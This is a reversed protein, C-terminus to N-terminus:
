YGSITGSEIDEQRGVDSTPNASSSGSSTSTPTPAPASTSDGQGVTQVTGDPQTVPVDGTVVNLFADGTRLDIRVSVQAGDQVVATANNILVNVSDGGSASIDASGTIVEITSGSPISPLPDGAEVTIVEGTPTTITITGTQNAVSVAAQAIQPSAFFTVVLSTCVVAFAAFSWQRKM